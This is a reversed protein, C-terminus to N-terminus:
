PRAPQRVSPSLLKQAALCAPSSAQRPMLRRTKSADGTAQWVYRALVVEESEGARPALIAAVAGKWDKLLVLRGVTATSVGGHGFRGGALTVFCSHGRM